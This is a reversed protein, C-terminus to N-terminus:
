DRMLIGLTSPRRCRISKGPPELNGLGIVSPLVGVGLLVCKLKMRAVSSTSLLDSRPRHTFIPHLLSLPLSQFFSLARNFLICHRRGFTTSQSTSKTYTYLLVLTHVPRQLKSSSSLSRTSQIPLRFRCAFIEERKDCRCKM